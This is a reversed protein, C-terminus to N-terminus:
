QQIESQFARSIADQKERAPTASDLLEIVFARRIDGRSQDDPVPQGLREAEVTYSFSRGWGLARWGVVRSYDPWVRHRLCWSLLSYWWALPASGVPCCSHCFTPSSCTLLSGGRSLWRLPARLPLLRHERGKWSSAVRLWYLQTVLVRVANLQNELHSGLKVQGWRLGFVFVVPTLAAYILWDGAGFLIASVDLALEGRIRLQAIESVAGPLAPRALRGVRDDLPSDPEERILLTSWRICASCGSLYSSSGDM